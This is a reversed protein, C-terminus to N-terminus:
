KSSSFYVSRNNLGQVDIFNITPIDLICLLTSPMEPLSGVLLTRQRMEGQEGKM